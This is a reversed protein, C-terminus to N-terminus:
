DEPGIAEMRLALLLDAQDPLSSLDRGTLEEIRRIRYRLSNVHVFMRQAARTWSGSCDLFVRLTRALDTKHERDYAQLPGLLRACFVRRAEEPVMALLLEHSGLQSGTVVRVGGGLLRALRRAQCAEAVAGSLAGVARLGAEEDAQGATAQGPPDTAPPDRGDVPGGVGLALDVGPVGALIGVAAAVAAPIAQTAPAVAVVDTGCIGVAAGPLMEELLARAAQGPDSGDPLAASVAAADQRPDVACRRMAAVIQRVRPAPAAARRGGPGTAEAPASGAEGAQWALTLRLLEDASRRVARKRDEHVARFEAAIEALESAVKGREEAWGAHDGAFALFWAALRHVPRAEIALLSFTVGDVSTTAPLAASALFGAALGSLMREGGGLPLGAVARGTASVIGGALGYRAQATEFLTGVAEPTAADAAGGPGGALLRARATPAAGGANPLFSRLVRETVAAFSVDVPVGLLPMGHRRCADVVDQPVTGFVADGAALVAVGADALARVFTESDEPARRWMLGSLVLEGGSLYRRPDLLDTTYIGTIERDLADEGALVRLRLEPSDLLVRLLM